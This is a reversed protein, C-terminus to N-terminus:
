NVQHQLFRRLGKIKIDLGFIDRRGREFELKLKRQQKNHNFLFYIYDEISSCLAIRVQCTQVSGDARQCSVDISSFVYAFSKKTYVNFLLYRASVSLPTHVFNNSRIYWPLKDLVSNMRHATRAALTAYVKRRTCVTKSM